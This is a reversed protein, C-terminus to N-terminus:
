MLDESNMRTKLVPRKRTLGLREAEDWKARQAQIEEVMRDFDSASLESPNRSMLLSLSETGQGAEALADSHPIMGSAEGKESM